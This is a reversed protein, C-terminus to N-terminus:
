PREEAQMSPENRTSCSRPRSTSGLKFLHLKSVGWLAVSRIPGGPESTTAVWSQMDPPLDPRVTTPPAEAQRKGLGRMSSFTSWTSDPRIRFEPQVSGFASMGGPPVPASRNLTRETSGHLIQDRSGVEGPRVRHAPRLRPRLWSSGGESSSRHAAPGGGSGPSRDRRQPPLSPPLRIRLDASHYDDAVSLRAPARGDGQARSLNEFPTGQRAGGESISHELRYAEGPLV